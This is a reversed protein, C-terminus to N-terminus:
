VESDADGAEVLLARIARLADETIADPERNADIREIYPRDIAAFIAAVKELYPRSEFREERAGGRVAVRELGVEPTVDFLLVLDPVPFRAEGEELIRRWDLGRAGQYAVSSLTYRDPLM